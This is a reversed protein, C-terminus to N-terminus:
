ESDEWGGDAGSVKSDLSMDEGATSDRTKPGSVVYVAHSANKATNQKDGDLEAEGYTL